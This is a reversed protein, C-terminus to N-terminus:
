LVKGHQMSYMEASPGQLESMVLLRAQEFTTDLTFESVSSNCSTYYCGQEACGLLQRTQSACEAYIPFNIYDEKSERGQSWFCKARVFSAYITHLVCETALARSPSHVGTAVSAHAVAHPVACLDMCNGFGVTVRHKSSPACNGFGGDM